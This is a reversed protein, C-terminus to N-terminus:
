KIKQISKTGLGSISMLDLETLEILDGVTFINSKNLHNCIKVNLGFDQLHLNVLELKQLTFGGM